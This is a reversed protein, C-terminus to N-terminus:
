KIENIVVHICKENLNNINPVLSITFTEKKNNTKFIYLHWGNKEPGFHTESSLLEIGTREYHNIFYDYLIQPDKKDPANNKARQVICFFSNPAVFIKDNTLTDIGQPCILINNVRLYSPWPPESISTKLISPFTSLELAFASNYFFLLLLFTYIYNCILAPQM